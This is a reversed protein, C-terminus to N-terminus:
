STLFHKVSCTNGNAGVIELHEGDTSDYFIIQSQRNKRLGTSLDKIGFCDLGATFVIQIRNGLFIYRDHMKSTFSKPCIECIVNINSNAIKVRNIIDINNIIKSGRADSHYIKLSSTSPMKKAIYELLETTENTIFKDYVVINDEPHIYKDLINFDISSNNKLSVTLIPNDGTVNSTINANESILEVGIKVLSSIASNTLHKNETVLNSGGYYSATGYGNSTVDAAQVLRPAHAPYNISFRNSGTNSAFWTMYVHNSGLLNQYQSLVDPTLSIKSCFFINKFYSNSKGELINKLAESHIALKM